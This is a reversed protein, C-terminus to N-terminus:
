RSLSEKGRGSKQLLRKRNFLFFVFAAAMPLIMVCYMSSYASAAPAAAREIVMGGITPGLLMGLDTGIYNTNGAAGRREKPVCKMCLSQVM